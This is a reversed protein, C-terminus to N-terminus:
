AVAYRKSGEAFYDRLYETVRRASLSDGEGPRVFQRVDIDDGVDLNLQVRRTPVQWWKDGRGLTSPTCRIIVPTLNFVGRVAINAAGRKLSIPGDRPTRTGEPFIILNNGSTLSAICKDLLEPGDDNNIYGAARLPGRTFPNNWLGGKVICDAHKVFAMLFVTDILSPHNAVILLGKRDLKEIGKLEYRLVGLARMLAIFFRFTLRVVERATAKRLRQEWVFLNIAPFILIRMLLGGTGFVVFSIGTGVVRWYQDIRSYM